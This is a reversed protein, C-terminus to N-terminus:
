SKGVFGLEMVSSKCSVVSLIILFYMCFGTRDGTWNFLCLIQLSEFNFVM